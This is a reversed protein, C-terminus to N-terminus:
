RSRVQGQFGVLDKKRDAEYRIIECRPAREKPADNPAAIAEKM